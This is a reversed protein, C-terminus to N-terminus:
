QRADMFRQVKPSSPKAVVGFKYYLYDKLKNLAVVDRDECELEYDIRDFYVNRDLELTWENLQFKSRYTEM